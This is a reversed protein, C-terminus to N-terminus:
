LFPRFFQGGLRFRSHAVLYDADNQSIALPEVLNGYHLSSDRLNSAAWIDWECLVVDGLDNKHVVFPVEVRTAGAAQQGPGFSLLHEYANM